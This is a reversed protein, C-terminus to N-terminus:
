KLDDGLHQQIRHTACIATKVGESFIWLIAWVGDNLNMTM